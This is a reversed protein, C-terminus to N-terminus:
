QLTRTINDYIRDKKIQLGMKKKQEVLSTFVENVDQLRKRMILVDGAFAM